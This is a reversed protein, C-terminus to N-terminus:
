GYLGKEKLLELFHDINPMLRDQAVDYRVMKKFHCVLNEISIDKGHAEVLSLCDEFDVNTGRM